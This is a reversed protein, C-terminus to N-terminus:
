FTQFKIFPSDEYSKIKWIYDSNFFGPILDANHDVVKSQKPLSIRVTGKINVNSKELFSVQKKTLTQANIEVVGKGLHKSQFIQFVDSSDGINLAELSKVKFVGRGVYKVSQYNKKARMEHKLSELRQDDLSNIEDDARYASNAMLHLVEGQYDIIIKNSDTVKIDAVFDQPM